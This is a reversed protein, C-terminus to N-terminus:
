QSLFQMVLSSGEPLTWNHPMGQLREKETNNTQNNILFILDRMFYERDDM